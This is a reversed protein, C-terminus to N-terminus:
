KFKKRIYKADNYTFAAIDMDQRNESNDKIEVGVNGIHYTLDKITKYPDQKEYFISINMNINTEILSKLIIETQERYYNVVILGSYFLNDVEIYKPNQMNIYSPSIIDKESISGKIFKLNKKNKDKKIKFIM